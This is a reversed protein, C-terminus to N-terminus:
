ACKCAFGAHIGILDDQQHGNIEEVPNPYFEMLPDVDALFDRFTVSGRFVVEIWERASCLM